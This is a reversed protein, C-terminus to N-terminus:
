CPEQGNLDHDCQRQHQMHGGDDEGDAIEDAGTRRRFFLFIDSSRGDHVKQRTLDVQTERLYIQLLPTEWLTLCNLTM